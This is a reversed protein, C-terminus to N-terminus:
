TELRSVLQEDHLMRKVFPEHDKFDLSGLLEESLNLLRK